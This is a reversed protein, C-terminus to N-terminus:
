FSVGFVESLRALTPGVEVHHVGEMGLGRAAVVNPELDDVFVAQEPQIGLRECTLLFIEPTPKRMRVEHSIVTVDFLRAWDTRDYDLGFSNSLLATRVGAARLAAVAETMEPLVRFTGFMRTLLGEAAVVGIGTEALQAAIVSEFRGPTWSGVELGHVPGEETTRYQDVLGQFFARTKVVDLGETAIWHLSAETLSSTLVGAYDIILADRDPM